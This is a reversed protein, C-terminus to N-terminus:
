GFVPFVTLPMTGCYFYHIFAVEPSTFITIVDIDAGDRRPSQKPRGHVANLDRFSGGVLIKSNCCFLM